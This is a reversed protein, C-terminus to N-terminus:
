YSYSDILINKNDYLSIIESTDNWLQYTQSLYIRWEPKYFDSDNRHRNVCQNYGAIERIYNKCQPSLEAPLSIPSSCKKLDKKIYNLCPQDLNLPAIEDKAPDPCDNPLRPQFNKIQGFYGICKNLQFNKGLPSTGTIIFVKEGPELIINEEQGTQELIPLSTGTPVNIEKGNKSKLKWGTINLHQRNRASYYLEIYEENPVYMRSNYGAFIDIQPIEKKEQGPEIESSSNQNSKNKLVPNTIQEAYKDAPNKFFLKPAAPMKNPGGTAYWFILLLGLLGLLWYLDTKADM